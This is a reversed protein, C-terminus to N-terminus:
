PRTESGKAPQIGDMASLFDAILRSLLSAYERCIPILEEAAENPSMRSKLLRPGYIREADDSNEDFFFFILEPPLRAQAARGSPDDTVTPTERKLARNRADTFRGLLQRESQTLSARWADFWQQYGAEYESKLVFTVSRAASLFASLYFEAADPLDSATVKELHRLFFEVEQLKKQTREIM